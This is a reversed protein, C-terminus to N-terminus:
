ANFIFASPLYFPILDTVCNYINEKTFFSTLKSVQKPPLKIFKTIKTIIKNNIM